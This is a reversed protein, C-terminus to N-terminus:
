VIQPVRSKLRALPNIAYTRKVGNASSAAIMEEGMARYSDVVFDIIESDWKESLFEDDTKLKRWNKITRYADDFFDSLITTLADSQISNNRYLLKTTAKGVVYERYEDIDLYEYNAM